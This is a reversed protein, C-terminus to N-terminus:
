SLSPEAPNDPAIVKKAEQKKRPKKVPESVVTDTVADSDGGDNHSAISADVAPASEDIIRIVNKQKFAANFARTEMKEIEMAVSLTKRRWHREAANMADDAMFGVLWLSHIQGILKDLERVLQIYLGSKSGSIRAPYEASNTYNLPDSGMGNDEAIKQVRAQEVRIEQLATAFLQAVADNVAKIALADKQLAPLVVSLSRLATDCREFGNVFVLQAPTSNIRIKQILYPNSFDASTMKRMEPKNSGAESTNTM